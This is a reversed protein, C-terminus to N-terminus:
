VMCKASQRFRVDGVSEVSSAFFIAKGVVSLRVPLASLIVGAVILYPGIGSLKFSVLWATATTGVNTGLLVGLSAGFSMARADVLAVTLASIASSSQVIATGIASLLFGLWRNNTIRALWINFAEGGIRRLEASFSQLGFLFLAIASFAAIFIEFLSM